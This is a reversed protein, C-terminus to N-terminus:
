TMNAKRIIHFAVKNTLFRNLSFRVPDGSRTFFTEALRLLSTGPAVGLWEALEANAEVASVESWTSAPRVDTGSVLYQVLM